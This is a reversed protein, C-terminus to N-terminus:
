SEGGTFPLFFLIPSNSFSREFLNSGAAAAAQPAQLLLHTGLNQQLSAAAAEAGPDQM